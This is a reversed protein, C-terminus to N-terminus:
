FRFTTGALVSYDTESSTLGYKVGADIDFNEGFSYIAGAIFFFPDNEAAKDPNKDMGINGVLKFDKVIEYTVALSVHWLDTAEDTNNENQIYGLNVYFAWPVAERSGIFFMHYGTKGTGLGEDENGTPYSVGPKVAFSLGDKEFFRWKIEFLTDSTGMVDSTKVGDEKVTTWLYPVSLVIDTNDFIGYTLTTVAQGGSTKVSVGNVTERDSDYQGSEELQFKGKGQTVSDDTILPHAAWSITPGLLAALLTVAGLLRNPRIIIANRGM